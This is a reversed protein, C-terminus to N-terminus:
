ASSPMRSIWEHSSNLRTSKRDSKVLALYLAYKEMPNCMPIITPIEQMPAQKQEVGYPILMGIINSTTDAFVIYPHNLNPSTIITIYIWQGNKPHYTIDSKKTTLAPNHYSVLRSSYEILRTNLIEKPITGVVIPLQYYVFFETKM